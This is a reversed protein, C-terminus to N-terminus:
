LEDDGVEDPVYDEADENPDDGDGGHTALMRKLREGLTLGIEDYTDEEEEGAANGYTECVGCGDVLEETLAHSHVPKPLKSKSKKSPAKAKKEPVAKVAPVAKPAAPAGSTAAELSRQDRPHSAGKLRDRLDACTGDSSLGREDCERVLDDKKMKAYSKAAPAAKAKVEPKSETVKPVAKSKPKPPAKVVEPVVETEELSRRDRPHMAGELDELDSSPPTGLCTLPEDIYETKLDKFILQHDHAVQKLTEKVTWAVIERISMDSIKALLHDLILASLSM